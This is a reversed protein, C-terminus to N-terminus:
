RHLVVPGSEGYLIEHINQDDSAPLEVGDVEATSGAQVLHRVPAPEGHFGHIRVSSPGFEPKKQFAAIGFRCDRVTVDQATLTSRDKSAIGVNSGIVLIRRAELDSAEGVSIGKDGAREVTVNDVTATSGSVDIADNVLREFRTDTVVVECFDCDFADSSADRFVSEDIRVESRVVNLADEAVNGAFESAVIQVPSEYFTVAGTLAWGKENVARLGRFSVHELVSEGGAGLVILGQGTADTSVVEIPAGDAGHWALPSRSLIKAGRLLDLRTGPGARLVLGPPVILDHELVWAGPEITADVETVTVFPFEELNAPRRTADSLPAGVPLPSYPVLPTVRERQTGLLRWRVEMRDLEDHQPASAMAFRATQFDVLEAVRRPELVLPAALDARQEPASGQAPLTVGLVEVPLSQLNGLALTLEANEVGALQARVGAFPDLWSRLLRQNRELLAYPAVVQPFERQVIREAQELDAALDARLSALYGPAAVRELESMYARQFDRDAFLATHFRREQPYLRGSPDRDVLQLGGSPFALEKCEGDFGIPELRLTVPNFYFRLNHWRAGHEAGLLDTLAFYTALRKVDFLESTRLEGRRFGELLRVAYVYLEREAPEALTQTTNFGDIASAEYAGYGSMAPNGFPQAQEHLQRWMLEEDFRLLPGARRRRQEVLQKEFHEELAYIGLPKGNLTLDVFEYRLGLVDERLLARHYIWEALYNRAVPHQLSFRELGLLTQGGKVDVRFSWKEGQLHAASDGKLRLAVRVNEDGSRITADVTDADSAFLAQQELARERQLSLKRLEKFGLDIELRTPTALRARVWRAPAQIGGEILPRVFIGFFGTAHTAGGIAFALLSWGAFLVIGIRGRRSTARGERAASRGSAPIRM